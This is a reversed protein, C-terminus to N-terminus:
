FFLLDWIIITLINKIIGLMRAAKNVETGFYDMRHFVPNVEAKSEGKDQKKILRFIVYDIKIFSVLVWAFECDM